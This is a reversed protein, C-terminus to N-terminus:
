EPPWRLWIQTIFVVMNVGLAALTNFSPWTGLFLVIGLTSVIASGVSIQRWFAQPLLIGLFALVAALFGMLSVIWFIIALTRANKRSLSPLLWSRAALWGSTDSGPRAEVWMLAGIAGGHGLGHLLLVASIIITIIQDPM